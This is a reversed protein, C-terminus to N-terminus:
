VERYMIWALQNIAQNAPFCLFLIAGPVVRPVAAAKKMHDFVYVFSVFSRWFFFIFIISYAALTERPQLLSPLSSSVLRLLYLSLCYLFLLLLLVLRLGEGVYLHMIHTCTFV